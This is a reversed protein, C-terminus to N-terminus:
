VAGHTRIGGTGGSMLSFKTSINQNFLIIITIISNWVRYFRQSLCRNGNEVIFFYATTYFTHESYGAM